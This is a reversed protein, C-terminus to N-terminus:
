IKLLGWWPLTKLWFETMLIIFIAIPAWFYYLSLREGELSWRSVILVLLSLIIAASLILIIYFLVGPYGSLFFSIAGLYYEEPYFFREEYKKNYKKAAFIFLFAATLSILYPSFFRAGVYFIFYSISQYPPLLYRSLDNKSWDLYQRYSLYTLAGLVVLISLSFIIKLFRRKSNESTLWFSRGTIISAGLILFIIGLSLYFFM